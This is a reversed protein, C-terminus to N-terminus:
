NAPPEQPGATRKLSQYMVNSAALGEGQPLESDARDRLRNFADYITYFEAQTTVRFHLDSRLRVAAGALTRQFQARSGVAFASQIGIVLGNFVGLVAAIKGKDYVGAIVIATVLLLNLVILIWNVTFNNGHRRQYLGIFADIQMKLEDVHKQNVPQEAANNQADM